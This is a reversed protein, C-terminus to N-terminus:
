GPNNMFKFSDDQAGRGCLIESGSSKRTPRARLRLVGIIPPVRHPLEACCRIQSQKRDFPDRSEETAV